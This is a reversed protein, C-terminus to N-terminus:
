CSGGGGGDVTTMLGSLVEGGEGPWFALDVDEGGDDADESQGRQQAPVDEGLDEVVATAEGEAVEGAPCACDPPAPSCGRALGATLDVEEHGVADSGPTDADLDGSHYRGGGGGVPTDDPRDHCREPGEGSRQKEADPFGDVRCDVSGDVEHSVAGSLGIVVYGAIALLLAGVGAVPERSLVVACGRLDLTAGFVGGFECGCELRLLDLDEVTQDDVEIRIGQAGDFGAEVPPMWLVAQKRAFVDVGCGVLVGFEPARELFQENSLSALEDTFRELLVVRGCLEDHGKRALL